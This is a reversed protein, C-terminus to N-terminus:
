AAIQALTFQRIEERRLHWVCWILAIPLWFFRHFLTPQFMAFVGVSLASATFAIVLPYLETDATNRMWMVAARFPAFQIVLLGILGPLGAEYLGKLDMNHAGGQIRNAGAAAFVSENDLGGGFILRQDFSHIVVDNTQERSGVSSELGSDHHGLREIRKVVPLNSTMILMIGVLVVLCGAMAAVPNVRRRRRRTVSILLPPRYVPVAGISAAFLATISGTTTIAYALLGVSAFRVITRRSASWEPHDPLSLLLLPMAILLYGALDNPHGFFVMQRGEINEHGVHVVGLQGLTALGAIVLTGARWGSLLVDLARRTPVIAQLMWFWVLTLYAPRIVVFLSVSPGWSVFTALVGATLLIISGTMLLKTPGRSRAPALGRNDGLLLKAVIVGGCLFFLGDSLALSGVRVVNFGL